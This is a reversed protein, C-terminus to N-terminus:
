EKLKIQYNGDVYAKIETGAPIVGEEGKVLFGTAALPLCLLATGVGVATATGGKGEGVSTQQASLLVESGDVATASSIALELEGKKGWGGKKKIKAVKAFADAGAKILVDNEVRVDRIVLLKVTQNLSVTESSITDALKLLVPTGSKLEVM